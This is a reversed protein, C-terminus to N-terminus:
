ACTHHLPAPRHVMRSFRPDDRAQALCPQQGDGHREPSLSVPISLNGGGPPQPFTYFLHHVLPPLDPPLTAIHLYTNYRLLILSSLYSLLPFTTGRVSSYPLSFVGPQKTSSRHSLRLVKNQSPNAWPQVGKRAAMRGVIRLDERREIGNAQPDSTSDVAPGRCRKGFSLFTWALEM